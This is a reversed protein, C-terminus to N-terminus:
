LGNRACWRQWQARTNLNEPLDAEAWTLEVANVAALAGKLSREGALFRASLAPLARVPWSALTYRPSDGVLYAASVGQMAHLLQKAYHPPLRPADVPATIMVDYEHTKAFELGTIVGALPGQHAPGTDTIVRLGDLRYRKADGDVVLTVAHVQPQLSCVAHQWLPRGDWELWRKDYPQMRASQGGALILGMVTCDNPTM